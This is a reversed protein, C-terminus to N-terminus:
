APTYKGAEDLNLFRCQKMIEERIDARLLEPDRMLMTGYAICFKAPNNLNPETTYSTRDLALHKHTAKVRYHESEELAHASDGRYRAEKMTVASERPMAREPQPVTYIDPVLVIEGEMLQAIMTLIANRKGEDVKLWGENCELPLGTRYQELRMSTTVTEENGEETPTFLAFFPHTKGHPKPFHKQFDEGFITVLNKWYILIDQRELTYPPQLVAYQEGLANQLMHEKRLGLLVGTPVEKPDLGEALMEEQTEKFARTVIGSVLSKGSGYPSRALLNAINERVGTASELAIWAFLAKQHEYLELDNAEFGEQEMEQWITFMRRVFRQTFEDSGKYQKQMWEQFSHLPKEMEHTVFDEGTWQWAEKDDDPFVDSIKARMLRFIKEADSIKGRAHKMEVAPKLESPTNFAM